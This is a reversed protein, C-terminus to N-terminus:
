FRYGYYDVYRFSQAERISKSLSISKRSRRAALRQLKAKNREAARAKRAEIAKHKLWQKYAKECEERSRVYYGEHMEQDQRRKLLKEKKFQGQKEQLWQKFAEENEEKYYLIDYTAFAKNKEFDRIRQRDEKANTKRDEEEQIKRRRDNERKKKLWFEFAEQNEKEKNQEEEKRRRESEQRQKEHAKKREEMLQKERPSLAYPSNYDFNNIASGHDTAGHASQPRQKVPTTRVSRRSSASATAPRPKGPPAPQLKGKNKENQKKENEKNNDHDMTYGLDRARVDDASVLQFQGDIEILVEDKKGSNSKKSTSITESNDDVKDETQKKPPSTTKTSKPSNQKKDEGEEDSFDPPPAVLDILNSKFVVKSENQKEVPTPDNKLEENLIKLRETVDYEPPDEDPLCGMETKLNDLEELARKQDETLNYDDVESDENDSQERVPLTESSSKGEGTKDKDKEMTNQNEKEKKNKEESEIYSNLEKEFDDLDTEAKSVSMM